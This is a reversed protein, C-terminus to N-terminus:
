ALSRVAQTFLLPARAALPVVFPRVWRTRAAAVMAETLMRTRRSAAEWRDPYRQPQGRVLCDVALRASTIGISLGEGTLADVYGAADGILLVHGVALASATQRLPGAGAVKDVPLHDRLRCTLAPFQQLRTRFSGGGRDGLIAVGVLDDAVPTVYAEATRGWYVEVRDSWPPLGYHVRLGYRAAGAPGADLGLRRRTPSHLGDAALVYRSRIREGTALTVVLQDPNMTPCPEVDTVRGAVHEVGLQTARRHLAAQLETRRVGRGPGHRFEAVASRGEAAPLYSIGVFDRGVPDVGLRQLASLATPMLGEGCAKDVPMPRTEVVVASWGARRAYLSATLGVPGGGIIVVDVDHGVDNDVGRDVGRGSVSTV